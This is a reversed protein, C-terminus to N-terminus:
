EIGEEAPIGTRFGTIGRTPGFRSGTKPRPAEIGCPNHLYETKLNTPVVDSM